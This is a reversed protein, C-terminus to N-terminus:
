QVTNIKPQHPILVAMRTPHVFRAIPQTDARRQIMKHDNLGPLLHLYERPLYSYILGNKVDTKVESPWLSDFFRKKRVQVNNNAHPFPSVFGLLTFLSISMFIKM